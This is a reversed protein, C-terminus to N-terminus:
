GAGTGPSCCQGYPLGGAVLLMQVLDEHCVLAQAYPRENDSDSRFYLVRLLLLLRGAVVLVGNGQFSTPLAVGTSTDICNRM